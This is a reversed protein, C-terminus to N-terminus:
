MYEGGSANIVHGTIYTSLDSALFLAINAIEEPKGLRGLPILKQHHELIDAPIKDLMETEILGPAIANVRVGYRAVERAMAKTFSIIGGKSASYNTQGAQGALGSLSTLNIIVGSKKGLMAKIAARSCYFLGNLNTEIVETWQDNSMMGVFNDKNIGANNILVDIQGYKKKISRIMEKVQENDAVSAQYIEAQRDFKLIEELTAQAAESNSNYNIIVKSGQRAFAICIARGIGRSGGTVIVVKDQLEQFM